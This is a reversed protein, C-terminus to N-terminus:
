VNESKSNKLWHLIEERFVAKQKGIHPSHLLYFRCGWNEEGIPIVCLSDDIMRELFGHNWILSIGINHRALQIASSLNSTRAKYNLPYGRSTIVKSAQQYFMNKRSYGILPESGIDDFTLVSKESLKNEKSVIASYKGFFLYDSEYPEFNMTDTVIAYDSEGLDLLSKCAADSTEEINLIIDPYKAHFGPIFDLSLYDSICDMVCVSIEQDKKTQRTTFYDYEHLISTFHPMLEMMESTPVLGNKNRYFLQTGLEDEVSAITKSLAQRSVFLEEAARSMNKCEFVKILYRLHIENIM